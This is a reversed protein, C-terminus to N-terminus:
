AVPPAITPSPSASPSQPMAPMKGYIRDLVEPPMKRMNEAAALMKRDAFPFFGDKNVEKVNALVLEFSEPLLTEIINRPQKTALAVLGIEDDALAFAARYDRLRFQNIELDGTRGDEFTVARTVKGLLITNPNM